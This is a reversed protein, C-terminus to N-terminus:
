KATRRPMKPAPGSKPPTAPAHAARTQEREREDIRQGARVAVALLGRVRRWRRLSPPRETFESLADVLQRFALYDGVPLARQATFFLDASEQKASM